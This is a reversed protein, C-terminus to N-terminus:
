QQFRVGRTLTLASEFFTPLAETLRPDTGYRCALQLFTVLEARLPNWDELRALM